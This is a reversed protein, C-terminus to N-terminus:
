EWGVPRAPEVAFCARYKRRRLFEAYGLVLLFVLSPHWILHSTFFSRVTVIALLGAAELALQYELSALPLKRLAQVLIWWAGLLALLVPVLGWWGTGMIIEVYTNHVSSTSTYGMEELVTFRGGAYAGYGTLPQQLFKQWGFEWFDLRSTLSYLLEPSQGRVFAASITRPLSTFCIPLSFAILLAMTAFHKCILLIM